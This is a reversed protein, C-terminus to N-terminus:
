MRDETIMEFNRNNYHMQFKYNLITEKLILISNKLDFTRVLCYIGPAFIMVASALAMPVAVFLAGVIFDVIFLGSRCEFFNDFLERVFRGWYVFTMFHASFLMSALSILWLVIVLNISLWGIPDIKQKYLLVFLLISSITTIVGVVSCFISIKYFISTRKLKNELSKIENEKESITMQDFSKKKFKKLM